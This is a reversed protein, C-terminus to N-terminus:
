EGRRGSQSDARDAAFMAELGQMIIERIEDGKFSSVDELLKRAEPSRLKVLGAVACIVAEKEKPKKFWYKKMLLDQFMPLVKAEGLEGIAEFVARKEALERDQFQETSALAIIPKLAFVSKSSGLVQLARIRLASSDDRLFKMLYTKAKPENTRELYSLVEKRVQPEKHSILAVVAELAAPHAIRALIFSMNRVVSWNPDSLYPFFVEPRDQGLEVLVPIIVRRMKMKEVFGLFECIRSISPKGFVNLIEMLDDASVEESTNIERALVGAAEKSFITGIPGALMGRKTASIQENQALGGLFKILNIAYRIQGSSLLNETLKAVIVVFEGFIEEDKEGVLIATLIQIVEDLARRKEDTERAKKLWGTEEETLHLISQPILTVPPTVSTPSISRYIGAIKDQQSTQGPIVAGATDFELFDEALIYTLHPLNKEWLLTVIDDDLDNPREKGVIDLFDCLEHEEIGKSFILYRIGDFYLRFAMSEKPDRSEYIKKGKYKLEFQDIDIKYDGYIDLHRGLRAVVEEIFKAVLPNNPLYMRLAKSTKVMTLIVETAMALEEKGLESAESAENLGHFIDPM